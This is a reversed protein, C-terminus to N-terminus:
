DFYYCSDCYASNLNTTNYGGVLLQKCEKCKRKTFNLTKSNIDLPSKISIKTAM